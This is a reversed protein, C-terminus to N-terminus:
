LDVAGSKGALFKGNLTVGALDPFPPLHLITRSPSRRTPSQYTIKLQRVSEDWQAAISTEGFRTPANKWEFGAGRFFALPAMKLLHLEEEVENIVMQRSLILPLANVLGFVGERTECGVFNGRCHGGAYQGYLGMSFNKRDGLEFSHFLNFSYMPECSSVEANLVPPQYSSSFQRHHKVHPGERFWRLSAQMSPDDAPLL